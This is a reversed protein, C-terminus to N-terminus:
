LKNPYQTTLIIEFYKHKYYDMPLYNLRSINISPSNWYWFWSPWFKSSQNFGLSIWYVQLKNESSYFCSYICNYMVSLSPDAILLEDEFPDMYIHVMTMTLYDFKTSPDISLNYPGRNPTNYLSYFPYMTGQDTISGYELIFQNVKDLSSLQQIKGPPWYLWINVFQCPIRQLLWNQSFKRLCYLFDSSVREM